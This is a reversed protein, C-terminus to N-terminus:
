ILALGLAAFAGISPAGRVEMSEIAQAVVEPDRSSKIRFLTPLACQDIWCVEGEALPSNKWFVAQYHIGNVNM